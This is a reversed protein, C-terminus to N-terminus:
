YDDMTQGADEEGYGKDTAISSSSLTMELHIYMSRFKFLRPGGDLVAFTSTSLSFTENITSIVIKKQDGGM